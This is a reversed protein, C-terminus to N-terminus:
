PGTLLVLGSLLIVFLSLRVLPPCWTLRYFVHSTAVRDLALFLAIASLFHLLLSRVLAGFLSVEWLIKSTEKSIHPPPCGVIGAPPM